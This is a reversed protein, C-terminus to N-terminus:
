KARLILNDFQTQADAKTWLGIKGSSAFTTNRRNLFEKGGFFCQIHDGSMMVRLTHVGDVHPGRRTAEHLNQEVTAGRVDRRDIHPM